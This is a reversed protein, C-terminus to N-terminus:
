LKKDKNSGKKFDKIEVIKRQDNAAQSPARPTNLSPSPFPSIQCDQVQNKAITIFASHRQNDDKNYEFAYVRQIYFGRPGRKIRLKELAVTQDLLSLNQELCMEKATNFALERARMSNQWLGYLAALLLLGIFVSSLM